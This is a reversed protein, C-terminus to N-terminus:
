PRDRIAAPSTSSPFAEGFGPLNEWHITCGATSCAPGALLAGTCLAGIDTGRRAARRLWNILRRDMHHQVDLGGCLLVPAHEPIADFDGDAMIQLGNSAKVPLGDASHMTWVYLEKEAQRNALRLPEIASTVPMMTFEPILILAIRQPLSRPKDGFM